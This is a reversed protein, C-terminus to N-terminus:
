KKAKARERAARNIRERNAERYERGKELQCTRCQRERGNKKVYADEMSHGNGCKGTRIAIAGVSTGRLYNERRTVPELHQPNSCRTNRCLHDLEMGEPVPGILLEWMVVHAVRQKAGQGGELSITDYRGTHKNPNVWCGDVSRNPFKKMLRVILPQPPRGRKTM